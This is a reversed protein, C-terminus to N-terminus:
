GTMWLAAGTRWRHGGENVVFQRIREPQMAYLQRFGGAHTAEAAQTKGHMSDSPHTTTSGFRSWWKIQWHQM